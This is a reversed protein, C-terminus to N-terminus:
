KVWHAIEASMTSLLLGFFIWLMGIFSIHLGGTEAAELRKHLNEDDKARIQQEQRLAESQKSLVSDIEKQAQILRENLREVNKTLAEFRAEISASPDVTSWGHAQVHGGSLGLSGSGAKLVIHRHWRPFHSMWELLLKVIGPRGFLKRTEHIGIAVTGIGLWQLILGIVRIQVETAGSCFSVLFALLLSVLAMWFLRPEVLWRWFLGLWSFIRRM